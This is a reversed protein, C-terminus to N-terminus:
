ARGFRPYELEAAHRTPFLAALELVRILERGRGAPDPGTVSRVLGPEIRFGAAAVLRDLTEVSPVVRGAEYAAIASHSTASRRALQRLSLGARARAQSILTAANV